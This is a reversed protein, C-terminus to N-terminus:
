EVVDMQKQIIRVERLKRATALQLDAIADDSLNYNVTGDAGRLLRFPSIYNNSTDNKRLYDDLEIALRM